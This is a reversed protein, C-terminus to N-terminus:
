NIHQTLSSQASGQQGMGSYVEGGLGAVGQIGGCTVMWPTPISDGIYPMPEPWPFSPAFRQPSPQGCLPCRGCCPCVQQASEQNPGGNGVVQVNDNTM